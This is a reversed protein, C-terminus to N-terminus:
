KRLEPSALWKGRTVRVLRRTWTWCAISRTRRTWSLSKNRQVFSSEVMGSKGCRSIEGAFVFVVLLNLLNCDSEAMVGDPMLYEGCSQENVCMMIVCLWVLHHRRIKQTQRLLIHCDFDTAALSAACFRNGSAECLHIIIIIQRSHLIFKPHPLLHCNREHGFWGHM